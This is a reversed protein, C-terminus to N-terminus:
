LSISGSNLRYVGQGAFAEDTVDFYGQLVGGTALTWFGIAAVTFGAPIDFDYTGTLAKSGGSSAGFTAAKRAYAPSGGSPESTADTPASVNHVSLFAPPWNAGSNLVEDKGATTLASAM